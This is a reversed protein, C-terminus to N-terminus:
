FGVVQIPGRPSLLPLVRSRLGLLACEPLCSRRLHRVRSHYARRSEPRYPELVHSFLRPFSFPPLSTLPSLPTIVRLHLSTDLRLPPSSPTSPPPLPSFSTPFLLTLKLHPPPHPTYITRYIPKYSHLHTLSICVM